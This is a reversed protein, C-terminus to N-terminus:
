DNKLGDTETHTFDKSIAINESRIAPDAAMQAMAEEFTKEKRRIAFEKLAVAMLRNFNGKLEPPAITEVEEILQRSLAISRRITQTQEKLKM